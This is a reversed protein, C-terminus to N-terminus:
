EDVDETETEKQKKEYKKMGNREDFQEMAKMGTASSNYNLAQKFKEHLKNMRIIAEDTQLNQAEEEAEWLEHRLERSYDRWNTTGKKVRKKYEKTIGKDNVDNILSDCPFFVPMDRAPVKVMIEKGNEDKSQYQYPKFHRVFFTGIYPVRLEGTFKLERIIVEALAKTYREMRARDYGNAWATLAEYFETPNMGSYDPLTNKYAYRGTKLRPKKTEKKAM